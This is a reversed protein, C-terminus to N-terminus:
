IPKKTWNILTGDKFAFCEQEKANVNYYIWEEFSRIAKNNPPNIKKAVPEGRLHMVDDATLPLFLAKTKSM